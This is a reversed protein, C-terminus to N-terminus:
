ERPTKDKYRETFEYLCQSYVDKLRIHGFKTTCLNSFDNYVKSSIQVTKTVTEINPDYVVPNLVLQESHVKLLSQLEDFHDKIFQVVDDSDGNKNLYKEIEKFEEISLTKEYQKRSQNFSYGGRRMEKCFTGYNMQLKESVRKLPDEIENALYSNVLEVREILDMKQFEEQNM